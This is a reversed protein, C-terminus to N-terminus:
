KKREREGTVCYIPNGKRAPLFCMNHSICEATKLYGAKWRNILDPERILPRSMSIYAAAGTNILREAVQFSRNGGVLILPVAVQEKFAKAEAQFYAETEESKIGARVPGLKGSKQNGSSLEIADIGEEELMMGVQLSDELTLGDDVFDQCNLKVLVPYDDGTHTRVSQLM